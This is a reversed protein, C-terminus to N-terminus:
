KGKTIKRNYASASLAGWLICIPWTIILGIGVTLAGVLVTLIIMIIAGVITSYLMGLPGFLVTLLIAIGVSKVPKVVMVQPVVNNTSTM